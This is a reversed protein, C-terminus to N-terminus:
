EIYGLERLREETAEDLDEDGSSVESHEADLQEILAEELKDPHEGWRNDREMPDDPRYYAEWSGESFKKAGWDGEPHYIVKWERGVATAMRNGDEMVNQVTVVDRDAREDGLLSPRGGPREDSGALDLITSGLDLLSTPGEVRGTEGVNEMVLPVRTVTDYM